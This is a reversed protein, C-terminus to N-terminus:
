QARRFGSGDLQVEFLSAPVRLTKFNIKDVDAAYYFFATIRSGRSISQLEFYDSGKPYAKDFNRPAVIRKIQNSECSYVYVGPEGYIPSTTYLLANASVWAMGTVDNITRNARKDLTLVLFGGLNSAKLVARCTGTPSVFEGANTIVQSRGVRSQVQSKSPTVSWVGVMFLAILYGIPRSFKM